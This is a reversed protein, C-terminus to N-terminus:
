KYIRESQESNIFFDEQFHHPPILRINSNHVRAATDLSRYSVEGMGRAAYKEFQEDAKEYNFVKHEYGAGILRKIIHWELAQKFNENDPILPYGEKDVPLSLYHLKIFGEEFSTQIMNGQIRYYKQSRSQSNVAELDQGYVPISSGPATTPTGDQTQHQFPNVSFTSVRAATQTAHRKSTQSTFDTIDGAEPLRYGNEDEVALITVFGCPLAACHNSLLIEGPCNMDGTSTILLTNTVQLMGLGEPIWELIDDHYTSPLKYGTGRIVRALIEKASVMAFNPM